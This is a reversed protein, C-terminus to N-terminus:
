PALLGFVTRVAARDQEPQWRRTRWDRQLAVYTM